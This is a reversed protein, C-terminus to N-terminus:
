DRKLLIKGPFILDVKCQVFASKNQINHRQNKKVSLWYGARLVKGDEGINFWAEGERVYYLVTTNYSTWKTRQDGAIVYQGITFAPVEDGRDDTVLVELIKFIFKGPENHALQGNGKWTVAKVGEDFTIM